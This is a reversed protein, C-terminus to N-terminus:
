KFFKSNKAINLFEAPVMEQTVKKELKDVIANSSPIAHLTLYRRIAKKRSTITQQSLKHLSKQSNNRPRILSLLDKETAETFHGCKRRHYFGKCNCSDKTIIYYNGSTAKIHIGDDKIEFEQIYVKDAM